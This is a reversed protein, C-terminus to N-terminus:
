RKIRKGGRAKGTLRGAKQYTLEYDPLSYHHIYIQEYFTVFADATAEMDANIIQPRVVDDFCQLVIKLTEKDL